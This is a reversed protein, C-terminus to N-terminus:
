QMIVALRYSYIYNATTYSVTQRNSAKFGPQSLGHAYYDGRAQRMTSSGGYAATFADPADALNARSNDDLCYEFTDGFMDFLGWANASKTGVAKINNEAASVAYSSGTSYSDGWAYRTTAGARAAIEWMVETPLDFAYAVGNKCNASQYAQVKYNLQACISGDNGDDSSAGVPQTPDIASNGRVLMWSTAGSPFAGWLSTSPGFKNRQDRTMPFVGIYYDCKTAWNKPSNTNPFDSHGTPYGSSPLSSANPLVEKGAWRPVKRLVMKQNKYTATNYRADSLAQTYLLGEFRIEGTSLDVVMYDDGSPNDAAYLTATMSAALDKAKLTAPPTWTVTHTGNSANAGLDHVGDITYTEGAITASFVIRAYTDATGDASLIQGGDVTYTIDVKNNWPWRQVVSDITVSSANAGVAVAAAGIMMLLKKMKNTGKKM